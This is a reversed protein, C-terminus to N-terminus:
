KGAQDRRKVTIEFKATDMGSEDKGQQTNRLVIDRFFASENLGRMFESVQTFDVADGRLVIETHDVKLDSLWVEKPIANSLAILLKSPMARDSVLKHIVELKQRIVTEDDDLNKKLVEFKKGQDLEQRLKGQEEKLKAIQEDAKTLEDRKYVDIFHSAAWTLGIFVILQRVLPIEWLDQVKLARINQMTLRTGAGTGGEQVLSASKRLALNIKIM